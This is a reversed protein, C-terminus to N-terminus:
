EVQTFLCAYESSAPEASVKLYSKLRRYQSAERNRWSCCEAVAGACLLADSILLAPIILLFGPSEALYCAIFQCVIVLNAPTVCEGKVQADDAPM